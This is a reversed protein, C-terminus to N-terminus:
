NKFFNIISKFIKVCIWWLCIIFILLFIFPYFVIIIWVTKEEEDESPIHNCLRQNEFPLLNNIYHETISAFFAGIGLYVLACAIIFLLQM